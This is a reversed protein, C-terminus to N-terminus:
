DFLESIGSEEGLYWEFVLHSVLFVELEHLDIDLLQLLHRELSLDGVCTGFSATEQSNDARLGFSGCFPLLHLALSVDTHYM